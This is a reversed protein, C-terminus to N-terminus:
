LFSGLVFYPTLDLGVHWTVGGSELVARADLAYALGGWRIGAWPAVAAGDTRVRGGGTLEFGNLPSFGAGAEVAWHDGADSFVRSAAGLVVVSGRWAPPRRFPVAWSLRLALANKGASSGETRIGALVDALGVDLDPPADDAPRALAPAGGLERCRDEVRVAGGANAGLESTLDEYALEVSGACATAGAAVEVVLPTALTEAGAGVDIWELRWTGPSVDAVFRGDADLRAAAVTWGSRLAVGIRKGGALRQAEALSVVRDREKFTLKGFVRARGAGPAPPAPPPAPSASLLAAAVLAAVTPSM